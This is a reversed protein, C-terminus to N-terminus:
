ITSLQSGLLERRYQTYRAQMTKTQKHLLRLEKKTLHRNLATGNLRYEPKDYRGYGPFVTINGGPGKKMFSSGDDGVFCDEKGDFRMAEMMRSLQQFALSPPAGKLMWRVGLCINFLTLLVSALTVLDNSSVSSSLSDLSFNESLMFRVSWLFYFFFFFFAGQTMVVSM